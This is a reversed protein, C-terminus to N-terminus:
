TYVVVGMVGAFFIIYVPNVKFKRLVAFGVAMLCIAAMNINGFGVAGGSDGWIAAIIVTAAAASILGAMAPRMASLIGQMVPTKNYKFYISGMVATIIAPMTLFGATSCLAGLVGFRKAGVFTATNLAIPGPTIEAITLM